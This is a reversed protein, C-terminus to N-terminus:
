VYIDIDSTFENSERISLRFGDLACCKNDKLNVGKLIPRTEDIAMCYSCSLLRLLERQSVEFKKEHLKHNISPYEENLEKFKVEKTGLKILNNTIIMESNKKINKLLKSTSQLLIMDGSEEIDLADISINLQIDMNDRRLILKNEKTVMYTNDLVKYSSKVNLREVKDLAKKFENFEVTTKM